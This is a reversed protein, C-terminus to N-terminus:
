NKRALAQQEFILERQPVVIGPSVGPMMLVLDDATNMDLDVFSWNDGDIGSIGVLYTIVHASRGDCLTNVTKRIVSQWGNDVRVMQIVDISPMEARSAALHQCHHRYGEVGGYYAIVGPYTLRIYDECNGSALERLRTLASLRAHLATTTSDAQAAAPQMAVFSLSLTFVLVHIAKM